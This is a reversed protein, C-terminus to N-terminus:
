RRIGGPSPRHLEVRRREGGQSAFVVADREIAVVKLPGISDGVSLMRNEVLATRRTASVLITRVLPDPVRVTEAPRAVGDRTEDGFLFPDRVSGPAGSLDVPPPAPITLPDVAPSTAVAPAPTESPLLPQQRAAAPSNRTAPRMFVWVNYAVAAILVVVAIRLHNRQVKM